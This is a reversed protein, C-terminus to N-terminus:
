LKTVTRLVGNSYAFTAANTASSYVCVNTVTGTFRKDGVLVIPATVTTFTGAAPTTGGIAGPTTLATAIRAVAINGALKTSDILSAANDWRSTVGGGIVTVSGSLTSAGSASLTTAAVPGAVSAAPVATLGSGIGTFSTATVDGDVDIKFVDATNAANRMNWITENASWVLGSAALVVVFAWILFNKM